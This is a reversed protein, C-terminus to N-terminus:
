LVCQTRYSANVAALAGNADARWIVRIIKTCLMGNWVFVAANAYDRSRWEPTLGQASLYAILRDDSTGIPFLEKIREDIEHNFESEDGPLTAALAPLGHIGSTTRGIAFGAMVVLLAAGWLGWKRLRLRNRQPSATASVIQPEASM